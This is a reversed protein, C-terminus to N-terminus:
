FDRLIVPYSYSNIAFAQKFTGAVTLTTGIAPVGTRSLVVIEDGTEQQELRYGGLGLVGVRGVVVGSVRVVRGDYAESHTLLDGITMIPTTMARFDQATGASGNHLVYNAMFASIAALAILRVIYGM